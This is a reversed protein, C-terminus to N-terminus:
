PKRFSRLMHGIAMLPHRLAMRPGSYRMVNRIKERMEPKYCHVSCKSCVPKEGGFKCKDLRGFAYDVLDRCDDCIGKGGPRHHGSCYIRVMVSITKKEKALEDKKNVM